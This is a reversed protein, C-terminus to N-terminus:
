DVFCTGAEFKYVVAKTDIYLVQFAGFVEALGDGRTTELVFVELPTGFHIEGEQKGASSRRRTERTAARM